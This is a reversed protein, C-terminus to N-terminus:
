EGELFDSLGSAFTAAAAQNLADCIFDDQAKGAYKAALAMFLPNIKGAHVYVAIDAPSGKEAPVLRLAAADKQIAKATHKKLEARIADNIVPTSWAAFSAAARMNADSYRVHPKLIADNDVEAASLWMLPQPHSPAIQLWTVAERPLMGAFDEAPASMIQQIRERSGAGIVMDSSFWNRVTGYSVGIAKALQKQTVRNSNLWAKVEQKFAAMDNGQAQPNDM